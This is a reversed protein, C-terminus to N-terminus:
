LGICLLVTAGVSNRKDFEIGEVQSLAEIGALGDRALDDFSSTRWDGKSLGSGRKDTLLVAIGKTVFTEAILRAWGNSRDSTGSGQLLVAAPYTGAETPGLLVGALQVEGNTYTLETETCCSLIPSAAQSYALPLGFGIVSLLFSLTPAKKRHSM